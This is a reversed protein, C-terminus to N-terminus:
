SRPLLPKGAVADLAKLFIEQPPQEEGSIWRQLDALPVSLYAALRQPTGLYHLAAQLTRTPATKKAM